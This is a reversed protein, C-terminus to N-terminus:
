SFGDHSFLIQKKITWFNCSIVINRLKTIITFILRSECALDSNKNLNLVIIIILLFTDFVAAMLFISDIVHM